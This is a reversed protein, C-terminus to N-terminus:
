DNDKKDLNLELSYEDYKQKFNKEADKPFNYTFVFPTSTIGTKIRQRYYEELWDDYHNILKNADEKLDNPILFSKNILLSQITENCVKLIDERYPDNPQYKNLSNRSRNLQMIIPELLEELIRIKYNYVKDRLKFQEEITKKIIETRKLLFFSIILTLIPLTITIFPILNKM